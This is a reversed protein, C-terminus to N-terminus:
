CKYNSQEAYGDYRNRSGKGLTEQWAMFCLRRASNIDVLKQCCHARGAGARYVHRQKKKYLAPRPSFM